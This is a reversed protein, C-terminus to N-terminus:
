RKERKLVLLVQGSGAGGDFKMPRQPKADKKVDTRFCLTLEDGKLEYVAPFTKTEKGSPDTFDIWRPTRTADLRWGTESEVQEGRKRTARDATFIFRFPRGADAPFKQGNAEVSVVTWTGVLKAREADAPPERLGGAASGVVCAVAVLAYERM